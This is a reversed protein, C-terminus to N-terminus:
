KRAGGLAQVKELMNLIREPVGDITKSLENMKEERIRTQERMEERLGAVLNDVKAYVSSSRESIHKEHAIRDAKAETSLTRTDLEVLDLRKGLALMCEQLLENSPTGPKTKMRDLFDAIQNLCVALAAIGGLIWGLWAWNFSENPSNGVQALITALLIM